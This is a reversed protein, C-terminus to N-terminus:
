DSGNYVLLSRTSAGGDQLVAGLEILYYAPGPLPPLSIPIPRQAPYYRRRLPQDKQLYQSPKGDPDARAITVYLEHLESDATIVLVYPRQTRGAEGNRRLPLYVEPHFAASPRSIWCVIGLESSKLQLAAAVDLPWSYESPAQPRVSDMQYHLRFRLSVARLRPVGDKIPSWRLNLRAGPRIELDELSEGLSALRMDGGSVERIYVGECRDGRPQYPYPHDPPKRLGVECHQQAAVRAPLSALLSILLAEGIRM